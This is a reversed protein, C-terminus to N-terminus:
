SGAVVTTNKWPVLPIEESAVDIAPIVVAVGAPFEALDKLAYNAELLRYMLHETGRQMGYVRFAILDWWDGQTSIYIRQPQPNALGLYYADPQFPPVVPPSPDKWPPIPAPPPTFIWDGNM